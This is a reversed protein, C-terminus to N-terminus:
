AAAANVQVKRSKAGFFSFFFFFLSMRKQRRVTCFILTVTKFEGV